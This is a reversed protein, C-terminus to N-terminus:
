FNCEREVLYLLKVEVQTKKPVASYNVLSLLILESVTAKKIMKKLFLLFIIQNQTTATSPVPAAADPICRDVSNFCLMTELTAPLPTIVTLPPSGAPQGFCPLLTTLALPWYPQAAALSRVGTGCLPPRGNPNPCFIRTGIRPCLQSVSVKLKKEIFTIL